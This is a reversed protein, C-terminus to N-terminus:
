THPPHDSGHVWFTEVSDEDKEPFAKRFYIEYVHVFTMAKHKGLVPLIRCYVHLPNLM